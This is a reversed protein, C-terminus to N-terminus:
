EIIRRPCGFMVDIQGVGQTEVFSCLPGTLTVRTPEAPDIFWGSDPSDISDVYGQLECDVFVNVLMPDPPRMALDLECSQVLKTTIDVFVDTLGQVGSAESVAFYRPTAPDTEPLAQGGAVAFQDLYAAYQETGPIGIVFTSIGAEQLATIQALTNADDLCYYPGAPYAGGQPDCCNTGTGPCNGDMNSTCTDAPCSNGADCNPGGDTALVVFKQGELGAGAGNVYYDYAAQLAAATPTGGQPITADLQGLIDDVTESGDGVPVVVSTSDPTMDCCLEVDTCDGDPLDQRPFFEVGLNVRDQVAPLATNLAEKLADWRSPGGGVPRLMSRSKDIVLLLNVREFTAGSTQSGCEDFETPFDCTMAGAGSGGSGPDGATGGSGGGGTDSGGSGSGGGAAAFGATAATGGNDDDEESSCSFISTALVVSVCGGVLTNFRLM